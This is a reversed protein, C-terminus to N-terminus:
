TNRIRQCFTMHGTLLSICTHVYSFNIVKYIKGVNKWPYFIICTDFSDYHWKLVFWGRLATTLASACLDLSGQTGPEFGVTPRPHRDKSHSRIFRPGTDCYTHCSFSGESSFVMLALWLDLNYGRWRYHHCGGSLQFNSLRSYVFLCVFFENLTEGNDCLTM